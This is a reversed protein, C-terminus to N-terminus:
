AWGLKNLGLGNGLDLGYFKSGNFNPEFGLGLM